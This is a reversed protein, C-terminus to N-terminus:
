MEPLPVVAEFAEVLMSVRRKRAPTLKTVINRVAYDIMWEEAKKREDSMQRRLDIKEAEIDVTTPHHHHHIAQPKVIRGKELARISRKLLMLKKLKRWNKAKPPVEEQRSVSITDSKQINSSDETSDEPLLIEDVAEKVLKLADSKTLGNRLDNAAAAPSLEDSADDDSGDLLQNGVKEVIGSVVHQYIMHWMKIRSKKDTEVSQHDSEREDEQIYELTPKDAEREREDEQIPLVEREREDRVCEVREREDEQIAELTPKAVREREDATIENAASKGGDDDLSLSETAISSPEDPKIFGNDSSVKNRENGESFYEKLKPTRSQVPSYEEESPVVTEFARVLLAVKRKQTPALENVAQRIAYDLMWEESNKRQEVTQRRLNVKESEPDPNIPLIKPKKPNFTKVKELARIFRQLLIWKKLNSWHKPAKKESKRVDDTVVSEEKPNSQVDMEGKDADFEKNQNEEVPESRPTDESTVSMDDSSQDQIEPLLIKEIAQRVLKIAFLKRVEIESEANETPSVDSDASEMAPLSDDNESLKNEPSSNSSSMHQHILHWMSVHRPKSFVLKSGREQNEKVGVVEENIKPVQIPNSEAISEVEEGSNNDSSAQSYSFVSKEESAEDVKVPTKLCDTNSEENTIIVENPPKENNNGNIISCSCKLCYGNLGFEPSSYKGIIELSDRYSREPFSIEGFAVEFLGSEQIQVEKELEQNWPEASTATQRKEQLINKKKGSPENKPVVSSGRQKKMSLRRKYVFKKLPPVPNEHDGHCHGHLSCHQYRCIKVKSVEESEARESHVDEVLKPFKTSDKLISSHTARDVSIVNSRDSTSLPSRKPKFSAKKILVRVNRSSTRSLTKPKPKLPDSVRLTSTQFSTNKGKSSSTAKLYNPSSSSSESSDFDSVTSSQSPSQPIRSKPVRRRFSKVSGFNKMTKKNNTTHKIKNISKMEDCDSEEEPPSYEKKPDFRSTARMYNPSSNSSEM